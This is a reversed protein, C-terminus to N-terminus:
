WKVSAEAPAKELQVKLERLFDASSGWYIDIKPNRAFTDTPNPKQFYEKLYDRARQPNSITTEDPSIQIGVHNYGTLNFSGPISLIMRLLVRFKWDELPFGLFFLSGNSLHSRVITPMLNYRNTQILYDFVDDETLVWTEEFQSKGFAYYLLPQEISPEVLGSDQFQGQKELDRRLDDAAKNEREDRWRTVLTKPSKAKSLLMEFLPDGTANVFIEADLSALITLPDDEDQALANVISGLVAPPDGSGSSGNVLRSASARMQTLLASRVQSRASNVSHKTTIYQTVKALDFRDQAPLPVRNEKALSAALTRSTGYVHAALDPGIIPVCKGSRVEDCIPKWQEFESKESDFGPVYWIRGSRLRMFLVPMWYDARESAVSGRAVGAARDIQGDRRLEEFFVPMFEEVTKMSVNGQMALIAPVGAEALRPGLASLSSSAAKYGKPGASQCSALVILRPQNALSRMGSALDVGSEVKVGGNEDELWLNPEGDILAGHCVLYVIDFGARLHSMINALTASGGAALTKISIGPRGDEAHKLLSEEARKREGEVDVPALPKGEPEYDSVGAPNAIVILAKLEAQPRLEVPRWEGSSLYRSFLITEGTFLAEGTQDCLTEWRIRHLEAAGPEIFLRVRLTAGAAKTTSRATAFGAQIESNQFLAQGLAAGYSAPDLELERLTETSIVATAPKEKPFREDSDSDPPSLRLEVGYADGDRRRIAIELDAFKPM